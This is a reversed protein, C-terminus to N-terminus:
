IHLMICEYIHCSENVHAVHSMGHAAWENRVLSMVREHRRCSECLDVHSACTRASTSNECLNVRVLRCSESLNVRVLERV